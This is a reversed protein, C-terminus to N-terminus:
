RLLLIRSRHGRRSRWRSWCKSRLRSLTAADGPPCLEAPAGACAMAASTWVEGDCVDDSRLLLAKLVLAVPGWARVTEVLVGALGVEDFPWRSWGQSRTM